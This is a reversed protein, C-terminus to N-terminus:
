KLLPLKHLHNDDHNISSLFDTATKYEFAVKIGNYGTFIYDAIDLRKVSPNFPAYHEMAFDVRDNERDDIEVSKIVKSYRNGNIQM